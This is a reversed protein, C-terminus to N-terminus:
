VYLSRTLSDNKDNRMRYLVGNGELLPEGTNVVDRDLNEERPVGAALCDLIATKTSGDCPINRKRFAIFELQHGINRGRRPGIPQEPQAIGCQKIADHGPARVDHM